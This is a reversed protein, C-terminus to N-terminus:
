RRKQRRVVTLRITEAYANALKALGLIGASFLVVWLLTAFPHAALHGLDWTLEHGDHGPHAQAVAPLAALVLLVRSAFRSAFSNRM